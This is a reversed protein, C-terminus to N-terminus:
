LFVQFYTLVEEQLALPWNIKDFPFCFRGETFSANNKLNFLGGKESM